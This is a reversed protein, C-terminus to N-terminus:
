PFKWVQGILIFKSVIFGEAIAHGYDLYNIYYDALIARKYNMMVGACLSLYLFIELIQQSATECGSTL